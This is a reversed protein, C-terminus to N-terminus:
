KKFYLDIWRLYVASPYTGVSKNVVRDNVFYLVTPFDKIRNKIIFDKSVDHFDKFELTIDVSTQALALEVNHKAIICADCGETALILIKNM